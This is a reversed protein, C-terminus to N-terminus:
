PFKFYLMIPSIKNFNLYCAQVELHWRSEFLESDDDIIVVEADPRNGLKIDLPSSPPDLIVQFSEAPEVTSDDVVTVNQCARVNGAPVQFTISGGVFDDGETLSYFAPM